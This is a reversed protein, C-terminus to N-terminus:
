NNTTLSHEQIGIGAEKVAGEMHNGLFHTDPFFFASAELNNALNM